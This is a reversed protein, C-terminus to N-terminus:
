VVRRKRVLLGLLGLGMLALSGPEPVYRINDIAGSGNLEILMSTVGAVGFDVRDWKNNGGTNPTFFTGLLGSAGYLFIENDGGPTNGNEDSEVDFFDISELFVGTDFTIEFYGAPRQGEDDPDRGCSTANCESPHEHIILINGPRYNDSLDPNNSSFPAGLDDDGGTPNNSDFIVAINDSNAHSTTINVGQINVGLSDYEDDIITGAAFGEFDIVDAQSYPTISLLLTWFLLTSTKVLFTDIM